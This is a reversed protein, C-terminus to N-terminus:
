FYYLLLRIKPPKIIKINILMIFNFIWFSLSSTNYGFNKHLILIHSVMSTGEHVEGVSGGTSRGMSGGWLGWVPAGKLMFRGMSPEWRSRGMTCGRCSIEFENKPNQHTNLAFNTFFLTNSQTTLAFTMLIKRFSVNKFEGYQGGMSRGMSPGRLARVEWVPGGM